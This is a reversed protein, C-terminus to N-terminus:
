YDLYQIEHNILFLGSIECEANEYELDDIIGTSEGRGAGCAEPM